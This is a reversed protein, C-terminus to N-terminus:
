SYTEGRSDDLFAELCGECIKQGSAQYYWDGNLIVTEGCYDCMKASNVNKLKDM